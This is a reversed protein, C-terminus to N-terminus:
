GIWIELTLENKSFNSAGCAQTEPKENEIRLISAGFIERTKKLSTMIYKQNQIKLVKGLDITANEPETALVSSFCMMLSLLFLQLAKNM